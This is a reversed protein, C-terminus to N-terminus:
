QNHLNLERNLSERMPKLIRSFNKIEQFASKYEPMQKLYEIYKEELTRFNNEIPNLVKEISKVNRFVKDKKYFLLKISEVKM